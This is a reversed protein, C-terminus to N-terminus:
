NKLHELPALEMIHISDERFEFEYLSIYNDKKNALIFFIWEFNFASSHDLMEGIILRHLNELCVLAPIEATEQRFRGFKSGMRSNIPPRIAQKISSSGTSFSPVPTTM